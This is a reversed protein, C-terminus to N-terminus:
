YCGPPSDGCYQGCGLWENSGMVFGYYCAAYAACLNCLHPVPSAAGISVIVVSGLQKFSALTPTGEPFSRIIQRALGLFSPDIAESLASLASLDGSALMAPTFDAASQQGNNRYSVHFVSSAPTSIGEVVINLKQRGAQFHYKATGKNWQVLVRTDMTASHQEIETIVGNCDSYSMTECDGAFTGLPAFALLCGVVVLLMIRKM